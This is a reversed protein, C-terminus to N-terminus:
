EYRLAVVPDVRTARRAPIYCALLAVGALLAAVGLFTLPDSPTVGFLMKSMLRTLGLAAAMGLAVGVFAMQAGQGIVMRLVDSRQAGLAMRIGIENTRQAVLYSVVGYIGLSALILALIAFGGLLIMSFRQSALSIALIEDMTQAQYVVQEGNMRRISARIADFVPTAAGDYRVAVSTGAPVQAIQDDPMQMFPLYVQERLQTSDTILDWQKVHGVVGVIEVTNPSNGIGRDLYLRKGVPDSAGFYRHAFEVDIVAVAASHEDDAATFFRGSKLPVKMVELYQPEVIYKLAWNMDNKNAPQPEGERWFLLEDDGSMPFAGWSLTSSQVGPVSQLTSDLQRLTARIADPQARILAPSLNLGFILVNSSRFGPDVRWLAALTRTALGAGVLLVLALAVEVVVFIAHARQRASTVARGGESLAKQLDPKSIRLAPALGFLIGSGISIALTFLLVHADVGVEDARPLAGPLAALAAKTGWFAILLGLAGGALSLLLSETVFQRLLRARGAGLAVRIAFERARGTSRAILLNAVNVCAILLVFGVAGFLVLLIPQTSGVMLQRLPIITAGVSKDADPYTEALGQTVAAM